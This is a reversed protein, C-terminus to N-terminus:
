RPVREQLWARVASQWRDPDTNWCRTHGADFSELEVLGPRADRLAQSLRIPVSNDRTGHLILTPRALDASRAIWDFSGLPIRGPLGLARALPHLTLWPIALHGVAAPLGSRTCNPKIVETWNLVSSDPVLAAIM